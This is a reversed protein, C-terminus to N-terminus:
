EEGTDGNAATVVARQIDADVSAVMVEAPVPASVSGEWGVERVRDVVVEQAAEWADLKELVVAHKPAVQVLGRGVEAAHRAVLAECVSDSLDDLQLAPWKRLHALVASAKGPLPWRL